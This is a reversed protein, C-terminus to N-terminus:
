LGRLGQDTPGRARRVHAHLTRRQDTSYPQPSDHGSDLSLASARVKDSRKYLDDGLTKYRAAASGSSPFNMKPDLNGPELPSFPSSRVSQPPAPLTPTSRLDNRPKLSRQRDSKVLGLRERPSSSSREAREVKWKARRGSVGSLSVAAPCAQGDHRSCDAVPEVRESVLQGVQTLRPSSM